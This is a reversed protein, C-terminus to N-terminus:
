IGSDIPADVVDFIQDFGALTFIRKAEDTAPMVLSFRRDSAEFARWARVLVALGSSDLYDVNYLDIVLHTPDDAVAEDVHRSLDPSELADM